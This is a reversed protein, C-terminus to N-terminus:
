WASLLCPARGIRISSPTTVGSRARRTGGARCARRRRWSATGSRRGPTSGAGSRTRRALVAQDPEAAAQGVRVDRQGGREPEVGGVAELLRGREVARLEEGGLTRVSGSASARRCSRQASRAPGPCRPRRPSPSPGRRDSGRRDCTSRNFDLTCDAAIQQLRPCGRVPADQVDMRKSHLRPCGRVPADQVDMRKPGGHLRWAM